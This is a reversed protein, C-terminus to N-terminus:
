SEGDSAAAHPALKEIRIKCIKTREAETVTFRLGEWEFSEGQEPIHGLEAFVFGGLTDYDADESIAADMQDNFDDVDMRADVEATTEDLWTLNPEEDQPEYEDQIEGVIEELIDEITVLGATGGYEDLIIAIHVKRAKFEALLDRVSKSEPVMYAERLTQSLDFDSTDSRGVYPILDKTYLIGIINDTNDEYVPIRSHGFEQITTVADNLSSHREIGHIDTRPTMIEGATTTPLDFVAELMEKQADDVSSGSEHEEVVSLVEDTIGNEDEPNLDAGSLRRVIPDIVQLVATIPWLLVAMVELVPLSWRLLRERRYRAWSVPIAVIFVSVLGGGILFALLYATPRNWAALQGEVYYLTLLVVALTFLARLVGSTLSLRGIQALWRQLHKSEERQEMLDTLRKRSFNRLATHCAAFYCGALCSILILWITNFV